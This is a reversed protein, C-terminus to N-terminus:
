VNIVCDLYSDKELKKKVVDVFNNAFQADPGIYVGNGSSEHTEGPTAYSYLDKALGASLFATTVEIWSTTRGTTVIAEPPNPEAIVRYRARHRRELEELFTRITFREHAEQVSRRSNAM